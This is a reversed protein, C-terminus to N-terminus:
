LAQGDAEKLLLLRAIKLLPPQLRADWRHPLRALAHTTQNAIM